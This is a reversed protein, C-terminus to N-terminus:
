KVEAPASKEPRRLQVLWRLYIIAGSLAAVGLIAAILWSSVGLFDPLQYNGALSSYTLRCSFLWLQWLKVGAVPM